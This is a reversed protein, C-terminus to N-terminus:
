ARKGMALAGEGAQAQLAACLRPILHDFDGNSMVLAVDGPQLEGLLGVLLLDTDPFYLATKGRTELDQVLRRSSFQEEPPVKWLDPPERVLILDAQDFAQAYPEQFVQRRSTNTRPEFVAVLRRRPYGQRVAELTASVATPHHAFDDLVLVGQYEGVAEQRRKVSKFSALAQQLALPEAGLDALVALAALTNLVNHAGLLPSVFKGWQKGERLVTFSMGGNPAPQVKAARWEVPDKFGYFAVPAGEELCVRRVLPADGWAMVKGDPPTKGLFGQFAQIVRDLDPYIDAHDFEISTLVTRYPQFHIFKPRKDFFATDYEDGELVV